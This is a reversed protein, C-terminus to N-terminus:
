KEEKFIWVKLYLVIKLCYNKRGDCEYLINKKFGYQTKFYKLGYISNWM